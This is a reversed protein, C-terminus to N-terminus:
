GDPAEGGSGREDDRVLDSLTSREWDLPVESVIRRFKHSATRPVEAMTEIRVNVPGGLRVRLVDTVEEAISDTLPGDCVLRATYEMPTHQILQSAHINEIDRFARLVMLPPLLRGDPTTIIDGQRTAKLSLLPLGRGCTCSERSFAAIDGVEYRLLPMAMNHLGTGVLRGPVGRPVQNGDGDVIECIGYEPFVHHGRHHDCEASYVVREAQGYGDFVECDFRDSIVRRDADPLPEATTFVCRLPLREGSAELFRALVVATSPYSDLAVVGTSRMMEIYHHLNESSMHHASLFVQNWRRNFRWFPPRKQELPVVMTGFLTAHPDGFEFGGWRRGRWLCANNIVGIARDWYFHVVDGTTGSTYKKTIERRSLATSVMDELNARIDSKTLVPLKMLDEVTTVDSPGLGLRDFLRRYYPVTGYAHEVIAALREEQYQRHEESSFRESRELFRSFREYGPGFRERYIKRGQYAIMLNQVPLPSGRYVREEFSYKM